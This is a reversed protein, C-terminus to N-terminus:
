RLASVFFNATNVEVEFEKDCKSCIKKITTVLGFEDMQAGLETLDEHDMREFITRGFSTKYKRDVKNGNVELLAQVYIAFQLRVKDSRGTKGSAMDCDNLSPFRFKLKEILEGNGDNDRIEVPYKLTFDVEEKEGAMKVELDGIFDRTDLDPDKHYACIKKTHCRPCEYMGEVGDDAEGQLLAQVSLYFASKFSMAGVIQKVAQPDKEGDINDIAGSLFVQIAKYIEGQEVVKYTDALISAILRGKLEAGKYTKGNLRVPIPLEIVGM